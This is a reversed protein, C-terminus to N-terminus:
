KKSFLFDIFKTDFDDIDSSTMTHKKEDSWFSLEFWMNSKEDLVTAMSVSDIKVGALDAQMKLKQIAKLIVEKAKANLIVREYGWRNKSM